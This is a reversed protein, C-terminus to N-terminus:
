TTKQMASKCSANEQKQQGHSVMRPMTLKTKLGSKRQMPM